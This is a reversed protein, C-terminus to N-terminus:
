VLVYKCGLDPLSLVWHRLDLQKNDHHGANKM